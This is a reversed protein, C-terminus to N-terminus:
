GNLLKLAYELQNDTDTNIRFEDSSEAIVIDPNVGVRSISKGSPLFYKSVTLRIAGENDLPIISQVSGKGYTSEGVLIARKHDQLAGAVIESASASGYNILIVMTEGNIIDGKKAFWKRNEYKRKSKTSVIEGNELFYDSIKIAQSLLGGPNNRLDLIYNKIEKNKKFEKIKNKIQKSSNENFSTLRIYATKDDKIESKVSAVQIVERTITFILAKREGRRRVTIEIDSGVPGRMLEVAESLTKGQVQIDDIKVIYDGAKVGVEEAPSNDIPSIVKVVGAEMSVEIGLGGFEGSTETQMNKFSDPSMYASYPDLSQLVGNIAADMADSQNVEDVYEKNIKDLVESFLDIKKYIDNEDSLIPKSFAFFVVSIILLFKKM